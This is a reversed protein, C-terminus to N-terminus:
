AGPGGLLLLAVKILGQATEPGGAVLLLAVFMLALNQKRETKLDARLDSLLQGQTALSELSAEIGAVKERLDSIDACPTQCTKHAPAM